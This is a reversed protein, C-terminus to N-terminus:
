VDLEEPYNTIYLKTKARTIATYVWSPPLHGTEDSFGSFDIIINEWGGGQSKHGTVAYGYKCLVPNFKRDFYIGKDGTKKAISQRAQSLLDDGDKDFSDFEEKTLNYSNILHDVSLTIEFPNNVVGGDQNILDVVVNQYLFPLYFEEKGSKQNTLIFEEVDNLKKIELFQGNYLPQDYQQNYNKFVQLKDGIEPALYKNALQYDEFFDSNGTSLRSKIEYNYTDALQNTSTIIKVQDSDDIYHKFFIDIVDDEDIFEAYNKIDSVQPISIEKSDESKKFRDALSLISSQENQRYIKNLVLKKASLNYRDQFYKEDLAPVQFHKLPPLQSQDGVFVFLIKKFPLYRQSTYIIEDLKFDLEPEKDKFVIAGNSLMSAEDIFLIFKDSSNQLNELTKTRAISYFWSDITKATTIGRERLVSAARGTFALCQSAIGNDKCYEIAEKILQTKGTGASGTLLLVDHRNERIENRLSKLFNFQSEDLKVV